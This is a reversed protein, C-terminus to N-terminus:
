RPNRLTIAFNVRPDGPTRAGLVYARRTRVASGAGGVAPVPLRGARAVRNHWPDFRLIARSPSGRRRGGLVYVYGDLTLACAGTVAGPLKAAVVSRETAIDYEEVQNSPRGGALGGGIAYIRDGVVAVAPHAVPVPLKAVRGFPGGGVSRLVSSDPVRRRGSRHWGGVLYTAGAVRLVGAGRPHALALQRRAAFPVRRRAVTAVIRGTAGHVGTHSATAGDLGGTGIALVALGGLSALLIALRVPGVQDPGAM